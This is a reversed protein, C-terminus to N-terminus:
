YSINNTIKTHILYTIVKKITVKSKNHILIITSHVYIYKDIHM